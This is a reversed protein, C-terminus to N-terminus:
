ANIRLHQRSSAAKSSSKEIVMSVIKPCSSRSWLESRANWIEDAPMPEMESLYADYIAVRTQAIELLKANLERM